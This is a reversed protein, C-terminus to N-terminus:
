EAAEADAAEASLIAELIGEWGNVQCVHVASERGLCDILQRALRQQQNRNPAQVDQGVPASMGKGKEAYRDGRRRPGIQRL